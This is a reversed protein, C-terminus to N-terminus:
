LPDTGAPLVGPGTMGDVGLGPLVGREADSNVGEAIVKVGVSHALMCLSRLVSQNGADTDIGRIMSADVKIYDLGLDHLGGIRDLERGCHEIGVHCGLPKLAQCLERFEAAHQKVGYEPVEVWLARAAQPQEALAALLQSRFSADRLSEASLNIGLPQASTAISRLALRVVTADVRSILGLRAAWPMFYGARQWDGDMHVRVPAEWHLLEGKTGIVPFRGLQIREGALADELAGRWGALETHALPPRHPDAICIAREGGQEASALAGDTRALLAKLATGPSFACAGLPFPVRVDHGLQAHAIAAAITEQMRQALAAADDDGSALLAFDTGNLRGAEWDPQSAALHLLHHGLTRLLTDVAPRGLERNLAAIDGIRAILLSGGAHADERALASEVRRLFQSRNMVRTLEDHQSQFRLAELRESEESLMMRVRGSLANMAGVVSRFELTRPVRTSVFRREGIATAQAVVDDLPRLIRKLLMTGLAGCAIGGVAFWLLLDRTSRWLSEYAYREHSEVQLTGFQHWGDQVQAVGAQAAIPILRRFWDPVSDGASDSVQEAIVAGKPDVLRILRYHGTDMRAALQLEISVPDKPLHSLVLALSGANDINKVTLAQVLHDRTSLTGVVLSGGLALLTVCLTAIWLQKILSM